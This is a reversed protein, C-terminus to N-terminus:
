ANSTADRIVALARDPDRVLLFHTTGAVQVALRPKPRRNLRWPEVPQIAINSMADFSCSWHFRRLRAIRPVFVLRRQTVWLRGEIPWRGHVDTTHTALWQAIPTEELLAKPERVRGSQGSRARLAVLASRVSRAPGSAGRRAHETRANQKPRHSAIARSISQCNHANRSRDYAAVSITSTRPIHM